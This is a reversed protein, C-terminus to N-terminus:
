WVNHEIQDGRVREAWSFVVIELQMQKRTPSCNAADSRLLTRNSAPVWLQRRVCMFADSEDMETRINPMNPLDRAGWKSRKNRLLCAGKWVPRGAQPRHVIYIVAFVAKSNTASVMSVIRRDARQVRHGGVYPERGIRKQTTGNDVGIFLSYMASETTRKKKKENFPWHSIGKRQASLKSLHWLKERSEGQDSHPM